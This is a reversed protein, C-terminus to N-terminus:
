QTNSALRYSQKGDTQEMFTVLSKHEIKLQMQESFQCM